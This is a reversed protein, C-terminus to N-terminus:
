ELLNKIQQEECTLNYKKEDPIDGENGPNDDIYGVILNFKEDFTRKTEENSNEDVIIIRVNCNKCIFDNIFRISGANVFNHGLKNVETTKM